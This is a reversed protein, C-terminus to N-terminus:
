LLQHGTEARQKRRASLKRFALVFCVLHAAATLLWSIPYSLYLSELTHIRAFITWIWVLRLVCSGITSVIMPLWARGLGRVIGCIVEMVGCLFYPMTLYYTRIMGCRIIEAYAPDTTTIYITLLQPGFIVDAACMPVGILLVTFVCAGLVKKTRALKGAGLAQSTFTIAAHYVSNMAQYTFGSINASATHGAIAAAGFSNISSQIMVNSISFIVSQLGAPFGIQIMRIAETPDLRIKKLELRASGELRVLCRVVLALSIYNSVATAIAVGAVGLKFYIVTILNLIVNVAGSIFLFTMPRKTDGFARLIAAGFNYMLSAPVGIFYIRLYLDSLPLIEEPTSMWRLMPRSFFFGVLFVLVGLLLSLAAATHVARSVMVDDRSGIYRAILINVGVSIGLFLGVLLSVLSGTAGVAALANSGAFKGVVITDAANFLLQLIGTAAMPLSFQLIQPLLAGSTLDRAGTSSAM